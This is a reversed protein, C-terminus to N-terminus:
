KGRIGFASIIHKQQEDDEGETPLLNMQLNPFPHFIPSKTENTLEIYNLTSAVGTKWRMYLSFLSQLYNITNFTTM